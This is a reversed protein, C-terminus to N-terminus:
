HRLHKKYWNVWRAIVDSYPIDLMDLGYALYRHMSGSSIGIECVSLPRARRVAERVLWHFPVFYRLLRSPYRRVMQRDLKTDQRDQHYVRHLGNLTLRDM